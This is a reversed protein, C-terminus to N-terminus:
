TEDLKERLQRSTMIEIEAGGDLVLARVHPVIEKISERIRHATEATLMKDTKFVIVDGPQLTLKAIRYELDPKTSM